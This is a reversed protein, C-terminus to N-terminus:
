AASSWAVALFACSSALRALAFSMESAEGREGLLVERGLLLEVRLVGHHQLEGGRDGGVRGRDVGRPGLEVIRRDAGM